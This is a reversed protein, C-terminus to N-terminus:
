LLALVAMVIVAPLGFVGALLASLPTIPIVFNFFGSVFNAVILLLAGLIANLILRGIIKIPISLLKCLVVLIIIGAVFAAITIM